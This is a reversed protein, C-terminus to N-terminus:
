SRKQPGFPKNLVASLLESRSHVDFARYIRKVHNHVTHQSLSLEDAIAKEAFGCILFDFVRKEAQSIERGCLGPCLCGSHTSYDDGGGDLQEYTCHVVGFIVEAGHALNGSEVRMGDVFTGNRSRNDQLTTERDEVILTAHMRSVSPDDLFVDCDPSRGVRCIGQRLLIKGVGGQALVLRAVAPM